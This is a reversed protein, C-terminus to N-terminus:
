SGLCAVETDQVLDASRAWSSARDRTRRLVFLGTRRPFWHVRCWYIFIRAVVFIHAWVPPWSLRAQGAIGAMTMINMLGYKDVEYTLVHHV